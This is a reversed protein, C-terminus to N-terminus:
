LRVLGTDALFQLRPHDLADVDDTRTAADAAGHARTEGLAADLQATLARLEHEQAHGIARDGLDGGLDLGAGPHGMDAAPRREAREIRVGGPERQVGQLREREALARLLEVTRPATM